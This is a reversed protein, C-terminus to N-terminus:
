VKPEMKRAIWVTESITAAQPVERTEGYDFKITILTASKIFPDTRTSKVVGKSGSAIGQWSYEMVIRM